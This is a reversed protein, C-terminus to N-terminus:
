MGEHLGEAAAQGAASEWRDRLFPWPSLALVREVEGTRGQRTATQLLDIYVDLISQKVDQVQAFGVTWLPWWMEEIVRVAESFQALAEDPKGLAALARGLAHHARWRLHKAELRHARDIAERGTKAATEAEEMELLVGALFTQAETLVAEAGIGAAAEVAKELLRQAAAGDSQLSALRAELITASVEYGPSRLSRALAAAKGIPGAAKAADRADVHAGGLALYGFLEAFRAKTTLALELGRTAHGVALDCLGALTHWDALATSAFSERLQDGALNAARQAQDLYRWAEALCGLRTKAVGINVLAELKQSRWDAIDASASMKNAADLASRYDGRALRVNFRNGWLYAQLHATQRPGAASSVLVEEAKELNGLAEDYRGLAELVCGVSILATCQRFWNSSQLVLNAQSLADDPQGMLQLVNILGQRSDSEREDAGAARWLEAAETFAVKADEFEGLEAHANGLLHLAEAKVSTAELQDAMQILRRCTGVVERPSPPGAQAHALLRVDELRERLHQAM